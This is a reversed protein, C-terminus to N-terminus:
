TGAAESEMAADEAVNDKTYIKFPGMLVRLGADRTPDETIEYTGMRGADFTEGAVGQVEGTLMRYTLYYALYGLDYFSWLAFVPAVGNNVYEQMESALGLGSVKIDQDLGESILAQSASVIAISHPVMFLDLEPYKGIMSLAQDYAGEATDDTYAIQLLIINEYDPTALYEELSAIWANQNAADPNSSLVVMNGGEEGLIERAMDAMVLGCEDFDVQAVFVNEGEASPIGSDYTNVILGAEQAAVASPSVQDGSFNSLIIADYEQTVANTIIDIQGTLANEATPGVFDWKGPNGLEEHAETGGNYSLVFVVNGLFKPVNIIDFSEVAVEEAVEEAPAVEEAVEEAPAAEEAPVAEEAAPPPSSPCATLVVMSVTLIIGLILILIKKM